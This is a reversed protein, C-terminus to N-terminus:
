GKLAVKYGNRKKAAEYVAPYLKAVVSNSVKLVSVRKVQGPSLQAKIAEEPYTNNESVTFSGVGSVVHQGTAFDVREALKGTLFDLEQKKYDMEAKVALASKLVQETTLTDIYESM